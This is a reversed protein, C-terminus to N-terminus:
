LKPIFVTSEWDGLGALLPFGGIVSFTPGKFDTLAAGRENVSGPTIFLEHLLAGTLLAVNRHKKMFTQWKQLIQVINSMNLWQYLIEVHKAMKAINSMNLLKYLIKVYKAMKAINQCAMQVM